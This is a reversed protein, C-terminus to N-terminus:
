FPLERHLALIFISGFYSPAISCLFIRCVAIRPSVFYSHFPLLFFYRVYAKTLRGIHFTGYFLSPTQQGTVKGYIFVVGTAFRIFIRRSIGALYFTSFELHCRSGLFSSFSFFPLFTHYMLTCLSFHWLISSLIKPTDWYLVVWRRCLYLNCANSNLKKWFVTTYTYM